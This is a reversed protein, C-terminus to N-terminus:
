KTKNVVIDNINTQPASKFLESFLFYLMNIYGFNQGIKKLMAGSSSEACGLESAVSFM